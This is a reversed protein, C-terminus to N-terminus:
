YEKNRELRKSLPFDKNKREGQERAETVQNQLCSTNENRNGSRPFRYKFM